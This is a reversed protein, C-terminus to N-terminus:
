RGAIAQADAETAERAEPTMREVTVYVAHVHDDIQRLARAWHCLRGGQGMYPAYRLPVRALERGSDDLIVVLMGGGSEDGRHVEGAM